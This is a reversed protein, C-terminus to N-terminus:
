ASHYTMETQILIDKESLRNLAAVIEKREFRTSIQEIRDWMKELATYEGIEQNIVHAAAGMALQEACVKLSFPAAIKTYTIRTYVVRYDSSGLAAFINQLLLPM